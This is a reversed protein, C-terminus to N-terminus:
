VITRSQRRSRSGVILDPYFYPTVNGKWWSPPEPGPINDLPSKVIYNRFVRWLIWVVSLGALALVAAM